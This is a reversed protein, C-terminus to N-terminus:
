SHSKAPEKHAEAAKPAQPQGVDPRPFTVEAKVAELLKTKNTSYENLVERVGQEGRESMARTVDSILTDILLLSAEERGKAELAQRLRETQMM